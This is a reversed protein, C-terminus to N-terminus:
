LITSVKLRETYVGSADALAERGQKAAEKVANHGHADATGDIQLLQRPAAKYSRGAM